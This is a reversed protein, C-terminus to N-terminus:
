RAAAIFTCPFNRACRPEYGRFTGSRGAGSPRFSGTPRCCTATTGSLAGTYGPVERTVAEVTHTAVDPLRERLVRLVADDIRLAAAGRATASSVDSAAM